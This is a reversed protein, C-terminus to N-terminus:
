RSTTQDATPTVMLTAHQEAIEAAQFGLAALVPTIVAVRVDFGNRDFASYTTWLVAALGIAACLTGLQAAPCAPELDRRSARTPLQADSGFENAM